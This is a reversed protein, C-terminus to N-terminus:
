AILTKGYKTGNVVVRDGTSFNPTATTQTPQRSTGFRLSRISSAPSRVSIIFLINRSFIVIIQLITNVM